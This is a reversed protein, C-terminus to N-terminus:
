IEFDCYRREKFKKIKLCCPCWLDKIHGHERQRNKKRPLPIIMGCNQCTFYSITFTNNRKM